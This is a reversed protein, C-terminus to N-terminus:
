PGNRASDISRRDPQGREETAAPALRELWAERWMPHGARACGHNCLGSCETGKLLVTTSLAKMKGTTELIMRHVPTVVRLTTGCHRNMEVGFYLGRNRGKPDLTAIIEQKDKVRALEGQRLDLTVSPTKQATGLFARWENRGIARLFRNVGIVLL